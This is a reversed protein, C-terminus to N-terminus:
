THLEYKIIKFRDGKPIFPTNVAKEVSWGLKKIRQYICSMSLNYKDSLQSVTLKVGNHEYTKNNSRNNQQEKMTSWRCNSPEYNGSKNPFRDITLDDSYGSMESWRKFSMYDLKWEDCVSIGKAGYWIYSYSNKNYCRAIMGSWIVFLRKNSEGRRVYTIKCIGCSKNGGHVLSGSISLRTNGCDCKCVWLLEGNENRKEYQSVVILRSFRMGILNKADRGYGKNNKM